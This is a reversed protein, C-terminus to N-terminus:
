KESAGIIKRISVEKQKVEISYVVLGLLGL